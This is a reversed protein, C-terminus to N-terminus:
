IHKGKRMVYEVELWQISALTEEPTLNLTLVFKNQAADQVELNWATLKGDKNRVESAKRLSYEESAIEGAANPKKLCIYQVTKEKKGNATKEIREEFTISVRDKPYIRNFKRYDGMESLSAFPYIIKGWYEDITTTPIDQTHTFFKGDRDEMDKNPKPLYYARESEDPSPKFLLSTVHRTTPDIYVKVHGQIDANQFDMLIIEYGFGTTNIRPISMKYTQEAIKTRGSPSFKVTEKVLAYTTTFEFQAMGLELSLPYHASSLKGESPVFSAGYLSKPDTIMRDSTYTFDKVQASVGLGMSVLLLSLMYKM